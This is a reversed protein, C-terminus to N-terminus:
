AGAGPGPTAALRDTSDDDGCPLHVIIRLEPEGAPILQEQEFVLEGATPHHFVRQRSEFGAVDHRPWWRAFLESCQLLREILENIAPDDRMAVTDARFQSLVRRAEREWDGILHRADPDAFVIWVLNREPDPLDLLKPFLRVQARNWALFDWRPGLVYAPTPELTALLRKIADPVDQRHPDGPRRVPHGGLALLHDRQAPDLRLTRALADLVDISANIPRGQELWTYWSVSVGALQAVEERRLGATRRRPGTSLGVDEPALEARRARLFDALEARHSM